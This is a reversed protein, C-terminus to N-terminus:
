QQIHVPIHTDTPTLNEIPIRVREIPPQLPPAPPEIPKKRGIEQQIATLITGIEILIHGLVRRYVYPHTEPDDDLSELMDKYPQLPNPTPMFRM